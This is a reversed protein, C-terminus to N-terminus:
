VSQFKAPVLCIEIPTYSVAQSFNQWLSKNSFWRRWDAESGHIGIKVASTSSHSYSIRMHTNRCGGRKHPYPFRNTNKWGTYQWTIWTTAFSTNAWDNHMDLCIRKKIKSQKSCIVYEWMYQSCKKTHKILFTTLIANCRRKLSPFHWVIM